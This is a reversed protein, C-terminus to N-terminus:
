LGRKLIAEAVKYPDVAYEGAALRERLRALREQREITPEARAAESQAQLASTAGDGLAVSDPEQPATPSPSSLFDLPQGSPCRGINTLPAGTRINVPRTGEWLWRGVRHGRFHYWAGGQSSIPAQPGFKLALLCVNQM